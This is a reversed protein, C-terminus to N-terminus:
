NSLSDNEFLIGRGFDHVVQNLAVQLSVDHHSALTRAFREDDIIHDPVRLTFANQYRVRSRRLDYSICYYVIKVSDHQYLRMYKQLIIYYILVVAATYDHLLM